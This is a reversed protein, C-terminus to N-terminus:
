VVDCIENHRGRKEGIPGIQRSGPRKIGILRSAFVCDYLVYRHELASDLLTLAEMPRIQAAPFKSTAERRRIAFFLGHGIPRGVQSQHQVVDVESCIPSILRAEEFCAHPLPDQM